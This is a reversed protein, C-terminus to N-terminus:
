DLIVIRKEKKEKSQKLESSLISDATISINQDRDDAPTVKKSEFSSLLPKGQGIIEMLRLDRTDHSLLWYNDDENHFPYSFQLNLFPEVMKAGYLKNKKCYPVFEHELFDDYAELMCGPGSIGIVYPKLFQDYVKQGTIADRAGARVKMAMPLGVLTEEKGRTNAFTIAAIAHQKSINKEKMVNKVLIDKVKIPSTYATYIHQRYWSLFKTRSEDAAFVDNCLHNLTVGDERVEFCGNLLIGHDYPLRSRSSVIKIRDFDTYIGLKAAPSLTRVIDSAATLCGHKSNIEQKAIELLKLQLDKDSLNSTKLQKELDTLDVLNINNQQCFNKIYQQHDKPFQSFNSIVTLEDKPFLKRHQLLRYENLGGGIIHNKPANLDLNSFWIKVFKNIELTKSESHKSSTKKYKNM